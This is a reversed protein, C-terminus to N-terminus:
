RRTYKCLKEIMRKNIATESTKDKAKKSKTLCKVNPHSCISVMVLAESEGSVKFGQWIFRNSM